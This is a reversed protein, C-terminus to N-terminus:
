FKCEGFLSIINTLVESGSIEKKIRCVPFAASSGIEIYGSNGIRQKASGGM